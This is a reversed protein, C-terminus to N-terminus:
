GIRSLKLLKKLDQLLGKPEASRAYSMMLNGLPDVIFIRGAQELPGKTTMQFVQRLQEGNRGELKGILLGPHERHLYTEDCCDTTVLFLRQVRPMDDNLALRAQRMLTLAERCPVDCHGSGIYVLTWKGRFTTASLPEAAASPLGLAPVPQPPHVLEGHNTQGPPRWAAAGYYLVFAVVLPTFFVALLLWIQNRSRPTTNNSSSTNV